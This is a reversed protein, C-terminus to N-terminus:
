HGDERQCEADAGVGRDEAEDIGDKELRQGILIGILDNTDELLRRAALAVTDRRQVEEVPLLIVRYEVEHGSLSAAGRGERADPFRDLEPSCADRRMKEVDVADMHLQSTRKQGIFVLKPLVVHHDEAMYEPDALKTRIRRDDIARNKEVVLGM